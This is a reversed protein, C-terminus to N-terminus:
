LLVRLAVHWRLVYWLCLGCCLFVTTAANRWRFKANALGWLAQVTSLRGSELEFQAHFVNSCNTTHSFAISLHWPIRYFKQKSHLLIAPQEISMRRCVVFVAWGDNKYARMWGADNMPIGNQTFDRASGDLHAVNKYKQRVIFVWSHERENLPLMFYISDKIGMRHSSVTQTSKSCSRVRHNNNKNKWEGSKTM